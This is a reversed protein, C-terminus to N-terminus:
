VFRMFHESHRRIVHTPLVRLSCKEAPRAGDPPCTTVAGTPDGSSRRGRSSGGTTRSVRAARRPGGPRSFAPFMDKACTTVALRRTLYDRQAAHRTQLPLGHAAVTVTMWSRRDSRRALLRLPERSAGYVQPTEYVDPSLDSRPEVVAAQDAFNVVAHGHDDRRLM